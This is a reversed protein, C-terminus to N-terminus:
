QMTDWSGTNELAPSCEPASWRLPLGGPIFRTQKIRYQLLRQAQSFRHVQNEDWIITADVALYLLDGNNFDIFLLGASPHLSLNGLTNFFFNGVFDPVTLTNADNICVFGPKGGRHSVDVSRGLAQDASQAIHASAIFYTDANAILQEMAANLTTGHQVQAAPAANVFSPSRGQIYKPCNGFSQVVEIVFGHQSIEAVIGNMRNRRRTHPQIGLLGVPAGLVLNQAMPDHIHPLTHIELHQADLSSMLGLPLSLVSAWPQDANDLSGLLVMPLQAFFERHQDPMATRILRAGIQEMHERMGTRQQMAQEGLHFPSLSVNQVPPKSM